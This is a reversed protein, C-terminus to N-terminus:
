WQLSFGGEKQADNQEVKQQKAPEPESQAAPQPEPQAAPEAAEAPAETKPAAEPAPEAQAEPEAAAAPEDMVIRGTAPDFRFRGAEAPAPAPAEAAPAEAAPAAPEASPAAPEPQSAPPKAEAVPQAEAPASVPNGNADVEIMRGTAPDFRLSTASGSAAPAVAAPAVAAPAVKSESQQQEEPQEAPAPQAAPAPEPATQAAPSKVPKGDAGIEIIRGTAPDFRFTNEAPAPATEAQAEAQGEVSAESANIEEIAPLENVTEAAPAATEAQAAPAPTTLTKTHQVAHIAFRGEFYVTFDDYVWRSIPPTGVPAVQRTPNGFQKRVADQTMGRDPIQGAAFLSSTLGLLGAALLATTTIRM